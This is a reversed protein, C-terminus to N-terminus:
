VTLEYSRPRSNLGCNLSRTYCSPIKTTEKLEKLFIHHYWIYFRVVVDMGIWLFFNNM